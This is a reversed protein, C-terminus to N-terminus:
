NLRFTYNKESVQYINLTYFINIIVNTTEPKLTENELKESQERPQPTQQPM